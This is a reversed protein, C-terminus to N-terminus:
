QKPLGTKNCLRCIRYEYDITVCVLLVKEKIKMINETHLM